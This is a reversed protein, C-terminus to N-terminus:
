KEIKVFTTVRGEAKTDYGAAKAQRHLCDVLVKDEPRDGSNIITGDSYVTFGYKGNRIIRVNEFNAM